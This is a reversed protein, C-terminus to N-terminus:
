YERCTQRFASDALPSARALEGLRRDTVSYSLIHLVSLLKARDLRGLSTLPTQRRFGLSSSFDRPECVLAFVASSPTVRLYFTRQNAQCDVRDIVSDTCRTRSTTLTLGSASMAPAVEGDDSTEARKAVTRQATESAESDDECAVCSGYADVWLGSSHSRVAGIRRAEKPGPATLDM